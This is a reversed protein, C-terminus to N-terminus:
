RRSKDDPDDSIDQVVYKGSAWNGLDILRCRECCFPFDPDTAKVEKKKCAPCVLKVSKKPVSDGFVGVRSTPRRPRPRGHRWLRQSCSHKCACPIERRVENRPRSQKSYVITPYTVL